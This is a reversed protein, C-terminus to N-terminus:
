MNLWKDGCSVIYLLITHRARPVEPCVVTSERWRWELYHDYCFNACYPCGALTEHLERADGPMALMSPVERRMADFAERTILWAFTKFTLDRLPGHRYHAARRPLLASALPLGM